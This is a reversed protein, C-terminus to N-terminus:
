HPSESPTAGGPPTPFEESPFGLPEQPSLLVKRVGLLWDEALRVKKDLQRAEALSINEAGLERVTSNLITAQRIIDDVIAVLPNDTM